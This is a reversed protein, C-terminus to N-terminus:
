VCVIERVRGNEILGKYAGVSEIEGNDSVCMSVFGCLYVRVRVCERM